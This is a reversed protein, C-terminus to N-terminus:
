TERESKLGGLQGSYMVGFMMAKRARREEPSAAGNIFECALSRIHESAAVIAELKEFDVIPMVRLLESIKM